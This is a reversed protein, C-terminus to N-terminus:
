GPLFARKTFFKMGSAPLMAPATLAYTCATFFPLKGAASCQKQNKGALGGDRIEDHMNKLGDLRHAIPAALGAAHSKHGGHAIQVVAMKRQHAFGALAAVRHDDADKDVAQLKALAFVKVAVRAGKLGVAGLQLGSAHVRQEQGVLALKVRADALIEVDLRRMQLVLQAAREARAVETAHGGHDGLQEINNLRGDAQKPKERDPVTM